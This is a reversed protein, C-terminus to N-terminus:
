RHCSIQWNAPGNGYHEFLWRGGGCYIYAGKVTLPVEGGSGGIVPKPPKTPGTTSFASGTADAFTYLYSGSHANDIFTASFNGPARPYSNRSNLYVSRHGFRERLLADLNWVTRGYSTLGSPPGTPRASVASAGAGGAVMAMLGMVCMSVKLV